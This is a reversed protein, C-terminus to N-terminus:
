LQHARTIRVGGIEFEFTISDTGDWADSDDRPARILRMADDYQDRTDASMEEPREGFWADCFFKGVQEPTDVFRFVPHDSEGWAFCLYGPGHESHDFHGSM